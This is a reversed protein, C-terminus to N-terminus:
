GYRKHDAAYMSQDRRFFDKLGAKEVIHEAAFTFFCKKFKHLFKLASFVHIVHSIEGKCPVALDFDIRYAM